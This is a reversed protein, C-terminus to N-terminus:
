CTIVRLSPYWAYRKPLLAHLGYSSYKATSAKADKALLEAVYDDSLHDNFPM